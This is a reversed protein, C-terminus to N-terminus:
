DDIRRTDKKDQKKPETLRLEALLPEFKELEAQMKARVARFQPAYWAWDTTCLREYPLHRGWIGTLRDFVEHVRMIIEANVIRDREQRDM